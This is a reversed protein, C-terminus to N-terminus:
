QRAFLTWSCSKITLDQPRVCEQYRSNSILRDYKQTLAQLFAQFWKSDSSESSMSQAVGRLCRSRFM